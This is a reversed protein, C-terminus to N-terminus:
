RAWPRLDPCDVVGRCGVFSVKDVVIKYMETFPMDLGTLRGHYELRRVTRTINPCETTYKKGCCHQSTYRTERVNDFGNRFTVLLYVSITGRVNSAADIRSLGIRSINSSRVLLDQWFFSKHVLFDTFCRIEFFNLALAKSASPM